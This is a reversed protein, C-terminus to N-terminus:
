DTLHNEDDEVVDENDIVDEDGRLAALGETSQRDSRSRESEELAEHSASESEHWPVEPSTM